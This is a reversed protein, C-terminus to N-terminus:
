KAEVENGNPNYWGVLEGDEYILHIRDLEVYYKRENVIIKKMNIEENSKAKEYANRWRDDIAALHIKWADNSEKLLDLTKAKQHMDAFLYGGAYGVAFVFLIVIIM